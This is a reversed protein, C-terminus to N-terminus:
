MEAGGKVELGVIPWISPTAGKQRDSPPQEGPSEDVETKAQLAKM